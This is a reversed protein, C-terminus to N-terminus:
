DVPDARGFCEPLDPPLGPRDGSASELHPRVCKRGREARLDVWFTWGPRTAGRDRRLFGLFDADAFGDAGGTSIEDGLEGLLTLGSFGDNFEVDARNIADGVVCGSGDQFEVRRSAGVGATKATLVSASAVNPHWDQVAGLKSVAAWTPAISANVMRTKQVHSM